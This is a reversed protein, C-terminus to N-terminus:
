SRFLTTLSSFLYDFDDPTHYPSVAFRVTGEPFTSVTKHALPACHLGARTEIGFQQELNQAITSCDYLEHTLSFLPGQVVSDMARHICVGPLEALADMLAIFDDMTHLWEVEESLAGSLGYLGVINPTGAEFRDPLFDPMDFSESRRGTGGVVLPQVTDPKRIFYGGIGTPGM